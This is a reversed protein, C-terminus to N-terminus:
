AEKVKAILDERAFNDTHAIVYIPSYSGPEHEMPKADGDLAYFAGSQGQWGIQRLVMSTVRGVKDIYYATQEDGPKSMMRYPRCDPPVPLNGHRRDRKPQTQGEVAEDDTVDRVSTVTERRAALVAKHDHNKFVILDGDQVFYAARVKETSDGDYTIVYKRLDAQTLREPM